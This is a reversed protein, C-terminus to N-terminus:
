DKVSQRQILSQTAAASQVRVGKAALRQRVLDPLESRLKQQSPEANVQFPLVM